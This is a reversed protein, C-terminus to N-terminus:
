RIDSVVGEGQKDKSMGDIMSLEEVALVKDVELLILFKDNVKGMGKVFDTRIRTGFEPAPEIEDVSIDLVENVTDVVIGVSILNGEDILEVIIIATRKSVETLEGGFRAALDIVPVVSGRLNIVGRIFTPTMPIPTLNGYDIIERIKLIEIAYVDGALSFTLFQFCKMENPNIETQDVINEM